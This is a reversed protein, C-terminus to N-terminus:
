DMGVALYGRMIQLGRHYQLLHQWLFIVWDLLLVAQLCCVRCMYFVLLGKFTALVLPFGNLLAVAAGTAAPCLCTARARWSAPWARPGNAGGGARAIAAWGPRRQTGPAAAAPRCGSSELTGAARPMSPPGGALPM